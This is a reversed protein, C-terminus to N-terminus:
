KLFNKAAYLFKKAWGISEEAKQILFDIETM